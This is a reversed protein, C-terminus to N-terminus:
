KERGQLSVEEKNLAERAGKRPTPTETFFFYFSLSLHPPKSKKKKKALFLYFLDLAKKERKVKEM